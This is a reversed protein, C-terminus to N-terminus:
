FSASSRLPRCLPDFDFNDAMTAGECLGKYMFSIIISKVIVNNELVHMHPVGSCRVKM